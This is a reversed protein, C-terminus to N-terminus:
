YFNVSASSNEGTKDPAVTLASDCPRLLAVPSFFFHKAQAGSAQPCLQALWAEVFSGRREDRDTQSSQSSPPFLHPWADDHAPICFSRWWRPAAPPLACGM